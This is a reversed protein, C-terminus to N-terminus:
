SRPAIRQSSSVARREAELRRRQEAAREVEYRSFDDACAPLLLAGSLGLILLGGVIGLGANEGPPDQRLGALSILTVVGGVLGFVALGGERAWGRGRLVGLGIPVLVAVAVVYIIAVYGSATRLASESTDIGAVAAGDADAADILGTSRAVALVALVAVAAALALTGWGAVLTAASRRRTPSEPDTM